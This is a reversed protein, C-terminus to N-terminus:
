APQPAHQQAMATVVDIRAAALPASTRAIEARAVRLYATVDETHGLMLAVEARMASALSRWAREGTLSAAEWASHAHAQAGLPDAKALAVAASALHFPIATLWDLVARTRMRRLHLTELEAVAEDIRRLALAARARLLLSLGVSADWDHAQLFARDM